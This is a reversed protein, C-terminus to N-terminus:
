LGLASRLQDVFKAASPLPGACLPRNAHGPGGNRVYDPAQYVFSLNNNIFDQISSYTMSHYAGHLLNVRIRYVNGGWKLTHRGKVLSMSDGFQISTANERYNGEDGPNITYGAITTNPVDQQSDIDSAWRQMGVLADNIFNPRFMRQEHIAINTTQIPVDQHDNLGLQASYVAFDPGHVYANNVNVRASADTSRVSLKIWAFAARIKRSM